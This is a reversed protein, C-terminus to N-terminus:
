VVTFNNNRYSWMNFKNLILSTKSTKATKVLGEAQMHELVEQHFDAEIYEFIGGILNIFGREGM